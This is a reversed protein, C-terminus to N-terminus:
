RTDGRWARLAQEAENLWNRITRPTKDFYRSICPTDPDGTAIQWGDFHRLSFATRQPEPIANLGDLYLARQEMSISPDATTESMVGVDTKDSSLDRQSQNIQRSHHDFVSYIMRRVGFWFRVQLFDGRDDELDLIEEALETVVDGFADDVHDRGLSQLKGNIHKASRRLLARWLQDVLERHDARHHERILYVLCEEQLYADSEVDRVAIRRVLDGPSLALAAAIQVDVHEERQYPSGNARRRTLPRITM